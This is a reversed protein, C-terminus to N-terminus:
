AATTESQSETVLLKHSSADPCYKQVLARHRADRISDVAPLVALDGRALQNLLSRSTAVLPTGDERRKHEDHTRMAVVASSYPQDDGATVSVVMGVLVGDGLPKMVMHLGDFGDNSHLDFYLADMDAKKSIRGDSAWWDNPYRHIDEANSTRRVSKNDPGLIPKHTKCTAWAGTSRNHNTNHVASKIRMFGRVLVPAAMANNTNWQYFAYCGGYTNVILDAETKPMVMNKGTDRYLYLEEDRALQSQDYTLGLLFGFEESRLDSLLRISFRFGPGINISRDKSWSSGFDDSSHWWPDNPNRLRALTEIQIRTLKTLEPGPRKAKPSPKITAHTRHPDFADLLANLNDCVRKLSSKSVPLKQQTIMRRFADDTIGVTNAFLERPTEESGKGRLLPNLRSILLAIIGYEDKFSM